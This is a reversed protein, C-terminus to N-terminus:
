TLMETVSKLDMGKNFYYLTDGSLDVKKTIWDPAKNVLAELHEEIEEREVIDLNNVLIKYVLESQTIFSCQTSRSVNHITEVIDTLCDSTTQFAKLGSQAIVDNESNDEVSLIPTM